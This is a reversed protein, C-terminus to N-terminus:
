LDHQISGDVHGTVCPFISQKSAVPHAANSRDCTPL